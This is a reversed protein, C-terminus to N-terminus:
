KQDGLSNLEELCEEAEQLNNFDYSHTREGNPHVDSVQYEAVGCEDLSEVIEYKAM